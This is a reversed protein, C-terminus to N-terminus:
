SLTLSCSISPSLSSKNRHQHISYKNRRTGGIATLPRLVGKDLVKFTKGLIDRGTKTGLTGATLGVGATTKTPFSEAAEQVDPQEASAITTLAAYMGAPVVGYKGVKSKLINKAAKGVNGSMEAFSKMVKSKQLAEVSADKLLNLRDKVTNAQSYQIDFDSFKVGEQEILNTVAQAIVKNRPNKLDIIRDTQFDLSVNGRADTVPNGIKVKTKNM